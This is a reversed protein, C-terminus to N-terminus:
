GLASTGQVASKVRGGAWNLNNMSLITQPIFCVILSIASIAKFRLSHMEEEEQMGQDREEPRGTHKSTTLLKEM